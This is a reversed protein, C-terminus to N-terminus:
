QLSIQMVVMNVMQDTAAAGGSKFPRMYTSFSWEAPAFSDTFMARGRKSGGTSNAAESM